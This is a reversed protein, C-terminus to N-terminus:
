YGSSSYGSGTRQFYVRHNADREDTAIFGTGSREVRFVQRGAELRNDKFSGNFEDRSARGSVSGGPLITLEVNTRMVQDYGSFTGVAWTAVEPEQKHKQNSAALVALLAVGAIAAGVAAKDGSDHDRGKGVRFDASCGRDVWVGRRDYGWSEYQRCSSQSHQRVLTVRNDTDVRCYRYRYNNSECRLTEEARAPLPGAVLAMCVVATVSRAFPQYPM